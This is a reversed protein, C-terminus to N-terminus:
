ININSLIISVIQEVPLDDTHIVQGPLTKLGRYCRSIQRVPWSDPADGRGELRSLLTEPQAKLIFSQLKESPVLATLEKWYGPDTVTMPVIVTGDYERALRELLVANFHRWLPDDQFDEWSCLPEPLNQRLFQGVNEPDYLFAGSLRRCLMEAVVTKGVGFAGNLWLIM